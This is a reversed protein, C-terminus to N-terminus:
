FLRRYRMNSVMLAYGASRTKAQFIQPVLKKSKMVSKPQGSIQWPTFVGHRGRV